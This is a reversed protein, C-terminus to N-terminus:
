REPQAGIVAEPAIRVQDRHRFTTTRTSPASSARRESYGHVLQGAHPRTLITFRVLGKYCSSPKM